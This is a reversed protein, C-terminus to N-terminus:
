SSEWGQLRLRRAVWDSLAPSIVRLYYLLKDPFPMVEAPRHRISKLIARSVIKPSKKPSISPLEVDDLLPTDIRGPYMITVGVGSGHLEQRLVNAFGSMACKAAVYPADLPLFVKADLSTVLIIHGDGQALMVPLVELIAYVGGFFNVAMSKEILDITLTELDARIYQGANSVLIDIRGWQGLAAQVLRKVDEQSTVDTPVAM